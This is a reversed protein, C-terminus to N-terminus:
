KVPMGGSHGLYVLHKSVDPKEKIRVHVKNDLTTL